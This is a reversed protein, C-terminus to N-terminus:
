KRKFVIIQNVEKTHWKSEEGDPWTVRFKIQKVDGVGFHNAVASGGAHGGGVTIERHHIKGNAQLEIWAGVARTNSGKQHVKIAIWNGIKTSTNEYIQMDVRRNIVVLDLKGDQNLDSLTAGRSKGTDAIGAQQGVETFKGEKNQILLNNPDKMAADPMQEVNGKAIFLDDFGDNNVDGFEAHWATSPRGENGFYPRHATMGRKYAGDKYSPQGAYDELIQFKQDSMSTLLYDPMGDGTIDRSAIGMGWIKFSKWGEEETYLRPKKLMKWLQEEGDHVYYHRDNSVRLDAYGDRNWDSFLMSLTCYSPKLIISKDFKGNTFRNISNTDCTGFPGKDNKRDVYNGFALIPENRKTEQASTYTASFATTWKDEGDFGWHENARSFKCNGEGKLLINEGVRLVALDLIGDGDIDLPYAGTVSKLNTSKQRQHSFHLANNKTKHSENILLKAPSSGGAVFLDPYNDNNCDFTAIGGGVFFEWEGTYQHNFTQEDTRNTFQM